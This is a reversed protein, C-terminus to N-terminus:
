VDVGFDPVHRRASGGAPAILRYFHVAFQIRDPDADVFVIAVNKLALAVDVSFFNFVGVQSQILFAQGQQLDIPIEQFIKLFQVVAAAAAFGGQILLFVYLRSSSNILYLNLRLSMARLSIWGANIVSKSKKRRTSFPWAWLVTQIFWIGKRLIIVTATFLPHSDQSGNQSYSIVASSTSLPKRESSSKAANIRM